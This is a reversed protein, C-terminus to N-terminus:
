LREHLEQRLAALEARLAAVDNKDAAQDGKRLTVLLMGSPQLVVEAAEVGADGDQNRVALELDSRRLRNRSIEKPMWNGDSVLTAPLWEVLRSFRPSMITARVMAGNILILVLAGFAAGTVSNDPGIVANQLTSALLLMAILDFTNLQALDRKGALRLLLLVVFYM